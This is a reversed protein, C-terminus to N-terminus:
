YLDFLWMLMTTRCAMSNVFRVLFVGLIVVMSRLLPCVHLLVTTSLIAVLFAVISVGRGRHRGSGLPVRRGGCSMVGPLLRLIGRVFVWFRCGHFLEVMGPSVFRPLTHLIRVTVVFRRRLRLLRLSLSQGFSMSVYNVALAFLCSHYCTEMLLTLDGSAPWGAM